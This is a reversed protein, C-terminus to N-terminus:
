CAQLEDAVVEVEGTAINPNITDADRKRVTGIVAIM